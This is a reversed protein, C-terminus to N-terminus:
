HIICKSRQRQALILEADNTQARCFGPWAQAKPAASYIPRFKVYRIWIGLLVLMPIEFWLKDDDKPRKMEFINPSLFILRSFFHIFNTQRGSWLTPSNPMRWETSMKMPLPTLLLNRQISENICKCLFARIASTGATSSRRSPPWDHTWGYEARNTSVFNSPYRNGWRAIACSRYNYCNFLTNRNWESVNMISLLRFSQIGNDCNLWKLTQKVNNRWIM